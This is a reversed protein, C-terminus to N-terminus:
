GVAAWSYTRDTTTASAHTITFQGNVVNTSLVYTSAAATAANATRPQLLIHSAAACNPAVVITVTTSTALSVSGVANSRGQALQNLITNQKFHDDESAGIVLVSM